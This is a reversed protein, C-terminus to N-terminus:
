GLRELSRRLRAEGRPQALLDGSIVVLDPRRSEVWRVAREVALSGPSPFGLHFDSLHAVRLGALESPLGPIAVDLTRLRVWSAEFAGWTAAATAAFVAQKLSKMSGKRPGPKHLVARSGIYLTGRREDSLVISAACSVLPR